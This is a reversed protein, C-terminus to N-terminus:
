EAKLNKAEMQAMCRRLSDTWHPIRLGFTEKIKTKDLVSYAPRRVPSPFEDSHCPLVECATHNALSAIEHAFDYWSCLGEGTYHYIGAKPYREAQQRALRWKSYNEVISATTQALDLAYTPTGVQDFVVNVRDRTATLQLMTKLFNRGFPSYLWATRLIICEAGSALIAQEGHLKSAGYVGLPAGEQEERYPTNCAAGGFVYDTSIHIILGDREKMIRALLGPAHANLSEAQAPQSEALDVNTFGACNIIVQIDEEDVVHRLAAEDTIDLLLTSLPEAEVIDAFVYHHSSEHAVIRLERGLQGNAGTVLINM